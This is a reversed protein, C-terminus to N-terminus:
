QLIEELFKAFGTSPKKEKKVAFTKDDRKEIEWDDGGGTIDISPNEKALKQWFRKAQLLTGEKLINMEIELAKQKALLKNYANQSDAADQLEKDFIQTLEASLEIEVPKANKIDEANTETVLRLKSM